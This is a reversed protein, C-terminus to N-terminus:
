DGGKVRYGWERGGSRVAKRWGLSVDSQVWRCLCMHRGSFTDFVARFAVQSSHAYRDVEDNARAPDGERKEGSTLALSAKESSDM